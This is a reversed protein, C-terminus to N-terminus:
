LSLIIRFPMPPAYSDVYTVGGDVISYREILSLSDNTREQVARVRISVLIGADLPTIQEVVGHWGTVTASNRDINAAFFQIRDVNVGIRKKDLVAAVDQYTNLQTKPVQPSAEVKLASEIPRPQAVAVQQPGAPFPPLAGQGLTTGSQGACILIPLIACGYLSKKM